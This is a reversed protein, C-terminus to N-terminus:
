SIVWAVASSTDVKVFVPRDEVRSEGGVCRDYWLCHNIAVALLELMDVNSVEHSTRDFGSGLLDYKRTRGSAPFCGRTGKTQM